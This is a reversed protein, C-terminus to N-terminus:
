LVPELLKKLLRMKADKLHSVASKYETLETDPLYVDINALFKIGIDIKQIIVENNKM